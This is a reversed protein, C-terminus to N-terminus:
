RKKTVALVYVKNEESSYRYSLIQFGGFINASVNYMDKKYYEGTKAEVITNSASLSSDDENLLMEAARFTAGELLRSATAYSMESTAVAVNYGEIEIRQAMWDVSNDWDIREMEPLRAFVVAGIKDGYWEISVIEMDRAASSYVDDFTRGSVDLEVFSSKDATRVMEGFSTRMYLQRFYSLMELCNRTAEAIANDKNTMPGSLGMAVSGSFSEFRDFVVELERELSLSSNFPM